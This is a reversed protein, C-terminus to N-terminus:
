ILMDAGKKSLSDWDNIEIHQDLIKGTKVWEEILKKLLTKTVKYRVYPALIIGETGIGYLKRYAIYKTWQYDKPTTLPMGEIQMILQWDVEAFEYGPEYLKSAIILARKTDSGSKAMYNIYESPKIHRWMVLNNIIEYELAVSQLASLALDVILPLSVQRLHKLLLMKVTNSIVIEPEKWGYVTHTTSAKVALKLEILKEILKKYKEFVMSPLLEELISKRYAKYHKIYDATPDIKTTLMYLVIIRVRPQINNVFNLLNNLAFNITEQFVKRAEELGKETLWGIRVRCTRAKHPSKPDKNCVNVQVYGSKILESLNSLESPNFPRKGELSAYFAHLLSDKIDENM